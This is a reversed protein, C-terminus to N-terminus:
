LAKTRYSTCYDPLPRSQNDLTFNSAPNMVFLKDSPGNITPVSSKHTNKKIGHLDPEKEDMIHRYAFEINKDSNM